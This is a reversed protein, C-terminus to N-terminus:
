ELTEPTAEGSRIIDKARSRAIWTEWGLMTTSLFDKDAFRDLRQKTEGIVREEVTGLQEDSWQLPANVLLTEQVENRVQNMIDDSRQSTM